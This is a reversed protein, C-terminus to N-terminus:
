SITGALHRGHLRDGLYKKDQDRVLPVSTIKQILDDVKAVNVDFRQQLATQVQGTLQVIDMTSITEGYNIPTSYANAM